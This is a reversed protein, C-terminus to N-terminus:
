RPHSIPAMHGAGVVAAGTVQPLRRQGMLYTPEGPGQIYERMRVAPPPRRVSDRARPKCSKPWICIWIM